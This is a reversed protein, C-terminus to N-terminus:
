DEFYGARVSAGILNAILRGATISSIQNIDRSPTIEVVDMGVVTGKNVLGHILKRAQLYTIGGPAPGAVAPMVSPDLGDADITLYYREGDPIKSLIADIGSDNLEHVTILNAGYDLAANMDETRASGQCRLGIQFIQDVHSMESARRIPSSYGEKEGNLHDRWDLHADLQILHIPGYNEFARFVPIPVGHDGGLCIPMAGTALIKRVASETKQYHGDINGPHAIIDGCDVVKIEKDDLLTGGLDFDWRRLSEVALTSARRIATPANSQDNSVEAMSYPMGFPLGLIVIDAQLNELDDNFPFNFLTTCDPQIPATLKNQM